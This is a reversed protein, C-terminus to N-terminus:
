PDIWKAPDDEIGHDGEGPPCRHTIIAQFMDVALIYPQGPMNPVFVPAATCKLHGVLVGGGGPEAQITVLHAAPASVVKDTAM